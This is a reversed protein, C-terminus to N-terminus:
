STRIGASVSPDQRESTGLGPVAQVRSARLITTDKIARGHASPGAKCQTTKRCFKWTPSRKAFIIIIIMMLVLSILSSKLANDENKLNFTHM